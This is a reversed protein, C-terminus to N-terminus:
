ARFNMCINKYDADLNRASTLNIQDKPTKVTLAWYAQGADTQKKECHIGEIVRWPFFYSKTGGGLVIGLGYPYAQLELTPQAPATPAVGMPTIEVSM